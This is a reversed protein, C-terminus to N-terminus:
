VEPEAPSPKPGEIHWRSLATVTDLNLEDRGIYVDSLLVLIPESLPTDSVRRWVM